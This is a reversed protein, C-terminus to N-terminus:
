AGWGGPLKDDVYTAVTYGSGVSGKIPGSALRLFDKATMTVTWEHNLDPRHLVVPIRGDFKSRSLPTNKFNGGNDMEDTAEARRKTVDERLSELTKDADELVPNRDVGLHFGPLYTDIKSFDDKYRKKDFTKQLFDDIMRKVDYDLPGQPHPLVKSSNM